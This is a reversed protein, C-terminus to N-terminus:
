LTRVNVARVQSRHWGPLGRAQIQPDIRYQLLRYPFGGDAVVAADGVHELHQDPSMALLHTNGDWLLLSEKPLFAIFSFTSLASTWAPAILFLAMM